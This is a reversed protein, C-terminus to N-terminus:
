RSRHFHDRERRHSHERLMRTRGSSPLIRWTDLPRSRKEKGRHVRCSQTEGTNKIVNNRRLKRSELSELSEGAEAIKAAIARHMFASSRRLKERQIRL